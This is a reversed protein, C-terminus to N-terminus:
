APYALGHGDQLVDVIHPWLGGKKGLIGLTTGLYVYSNQDKKYVYTM